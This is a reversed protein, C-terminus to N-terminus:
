LNTGYRRNYWDAVDRDTTVATEGAPWRAKVIDKTYYYTAEADTAIIAEAEPWRGEIVSLAYLLATKPQTAIVSEVELWRGKIVDKAYRCALWELDSICERDYAHFWNYNKSIEELYYTYLPKSFFIEEEAYPIRQQGNLTLLLKLEDLTM